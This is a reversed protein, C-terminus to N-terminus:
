QRRILRTRTLVSEHTKKSKKLLSQKKKKIQVCLNCLDIITKSINHHEAYKKENKRRNNNNKKNVVLLFLDILLLKGNNQDVM